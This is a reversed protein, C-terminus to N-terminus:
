WSPDTSGLATSKSLSTRCRMRFSCCHALRIGKEGNQQLDAEGLGDEPLVIVNRGGAAIAIGARQSLRKGGNLPVNCIQWHWNSRRRNMFWCFRQVEAGFRVRQQLRSEGSHVIVM